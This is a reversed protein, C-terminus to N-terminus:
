ARNTWNPVPQILSTTARAVTRQGDATRLLHPPTIREASSGHHAFTLHPGPLRAFRVTTSPTPDASAPRSGPPTRRRLMARLSNPGIISEPQSTLADSLLREVSRRPARSMPSNTPLSPLLRRPALRTRPRRQKSVSEFFLKVLDPIRDRPTRATTTQGNGRDAVASLRPRFLDKMTARRGCANASGPDDGRKHAQNTASGTRAHVASNCCGSPVTCLVHGHCGAPTRRSDPTAPMKILSTVRQPAGVSRCAQCQDAPGADPGAHLSVARPGACREGNRRGAVGAVGAASCVRLGGSRAWM